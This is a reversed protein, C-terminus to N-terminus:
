CSSNKYEFLGKQNEESIENKLFDLLSNPMDKEKRKINFIFSSSIKKM